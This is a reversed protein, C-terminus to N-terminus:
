YQFINLPPIYNLAQKGWLFIFVIDISLEWWLVFTIFTFMWGVTLIKSCPPMECNWFMQFSWWNSNPFSPIGCNKRILNRVGAKLLNWTYDIACIAGTRGCGASQVYVPVNSVTKFPQVPAVLKRNESGMCFWFRKIGGFIM